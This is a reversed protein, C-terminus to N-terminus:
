DLREISQVVYRYGTRYRSEEAREVTTEVRHTADAPADDHVPCATKAKWDVMASEAANIYVVPADPWFEGSDPREDPSHSYCASCHPRGLSVLREIKERIGATDEVNPHMVASRSDSDTTGSM